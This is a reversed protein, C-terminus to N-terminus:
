GPPSAFPPPDQGAAEVPYLGPDSEERGQNEMVRDLGDELQRWGRAHSGPEEDFDIGDDADRWGAAKSTSFPSQWGGYPQSRPGM